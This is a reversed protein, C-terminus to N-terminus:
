VRKWGVAYPMEAEIKERVPEEDPQLECLLFFWAIAVFWAFSVICFIVVLPTLLLALVYLWDGPSNWRVRDLHM